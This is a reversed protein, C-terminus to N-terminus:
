STPDDAHQTQTAAAQKPADQDCNKSRHNQDPHGPEDAPFCLGLSVARRTAVIEHTRLGQSSDAHDALLRDRFFLARRDSHLWALFGVHFAPHLPFSAGAFWVSRRWESCNPAYGGLSM